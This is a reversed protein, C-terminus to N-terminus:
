KHILGYYIEMQKSIVIEQDYRSLIIPRGKEGMNRALDENQLIWRMAEALDKPSGPPVLIGCGNQLLEKSGRIDTAIIPINMSMAELLVRPLGEQLSPLVVAASMKILLPINEQRGLFRIQKDMGKQKVNEKLSDELRGSGAFLLCVDDRELLEMARIADSHRKRPIFEAAMLLVKTREPIGLEDRLAQVDWDSYATPDFLSSDVGIGPLRKVKGAAILKKSIASKYDEENIVILIDTWRAGLKETEFYVTNRFRGGLDHFHFGHATYMIIPRTSKRMRGAAFRVVFSSIPTHTHVITYKEEELVRKIQKVNARLTWVASAPNRSFAVDWTEDFHSTLGGITSVGDAMAHVIWNDGRLRDAFPLLFGNITEPVTSVFLIKEKNASDNMM